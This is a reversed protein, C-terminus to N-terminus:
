WQVVWVGPVQSPPHTKRMAVQLGLYFMRSGAQWIADWRNQESAETPRLDDVYKVLIVALQGTAEHIRMVRPQSPNYLDDGPLTM